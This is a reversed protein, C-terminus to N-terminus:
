VIIQTGYQVMSSANGTDAITILRVFIKKGVGAVAGTGFQVEYEATLSLPSAVTGDFKGILKFAGAKPSFISSKMPATASVLVIGDEVNPTYALSLTHASDDATLAGDLIPSAPNFFVPPNALETQSTNALNTNLRAYAQRGKIIIVKGVRNTANLQCTLWDKQVDQALGTFLSMFTAFMGRARGTASTHRTAPPVFQRQVGNRQIVVGGARGSKMVGEGFQCLLMLIAGLRKIIPMGIPTLVHDGKPKTTASKTKSM